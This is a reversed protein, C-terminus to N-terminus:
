MGDGARCVNRCISVLASDAHEPEDAACNRGAQWIFAFRRNRQRRPSLLITVCGGSNHLSAATPNHSFVGSIRSNTMSLEM